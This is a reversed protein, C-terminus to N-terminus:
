PKGREKCDFVTDSISFVQMERCDNGISKAGLVLGMIFAWVLVAVCIAGMLWDNM